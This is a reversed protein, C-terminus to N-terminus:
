DDCKLKGSGLIVLATLLAFPILLMLYGNSDGAAEEIPATDGVLIFGAWFFPHGEMSGSTQLYQRKALRLAEDKPLHDSLNQYFYKMLTATSCDDVSWVSMVMSPVGAYAFARSLSMFGEGQAFKGLGTNCASLVVLDAKLPLHYLEAATIFGDSFFIRNMLPDQNDLCAHTALHLIRYQSAKALFQGKAAQQNLFTEGNLIQSAERIEDKNCHLMQLAGEDCARVTGPENNGTFSPAFGAFLKLSSTESERRMRDFMLWYASYGYSVTCDLMLYSLNHSGYAPKPTKPARTLLAEFPIYGIIDSPIILLRSGEKLPSTFFPALLCQYLQHASATYTSFAAAPNTVLQDFALSERFRRITALFSEEKPIKHVRISNARIGIAFIAREGVFYEVLTTNTDHLLQARLSALDVPQMDYKLRYYAPYTQEFGTILSDHRKNALFLRQRWASLKVSDRAPQQEEEAIKRQYFSKDQILVNELSIWRQPIIASQKIKSERLADLLLIAKNKESFVLIDELYRPQKTQQYLDYAVEIAKEYIPTALKALHLKSDDSHYEVRLYDILQGAQHYAQLAKKHATLPVPLSESLLSEATLTLTKVLSVKSPIKALAAKQRFVNEKAGATFLLFAQDYEKLAERHQGISALIEGYDNYIKGVLPHKPGHKAIAMTLAKRIAELAAGPAHQQRYVAAQTRFTYANQLHNRFLIRLFYQASDVAQMKVYCSALTNLCPPLKTPLAYKQSLQWSRRLFGVATSYAEKEFFYLGINNYIDILNVHNKDQKWYILQAQRYYEYAKDWEGKEDYLVGIINYENALAVSDKSPHALELNLAILANQLGKEYEGTQQYLAGYLQFITAFNDDTPALKQKALRYAQHLYTEMAGFRSQFFSCAALGELCAVSQRDNHLSLFLEKAYTLYYTASDSQRLFFFGDGKLKFAEAVQPSRKPLYQQSYWVATSAAELGPQLKDGNYYCNALQTYCYVVKEWNKQSKFNPLAQQFYVIAKTFNEKAFATEAKSFPTDQQPFQPSSLPEAFSLHVFQLILGTLIIVRKM